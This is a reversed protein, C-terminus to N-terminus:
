RRRGSKAARRPSEAWKVTTTRKTSGSRDVAKAAAKKATAKKAPAAKTAAAKKAPVAQKAASPRKASSAKGSQARRPATAGDEGEPAAAAPTPAPTARRLRAGQLWELDSRLAAILEDRDATATRVALSYRAIVDLDTLEVRNDTGTMDAV